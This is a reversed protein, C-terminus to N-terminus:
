AAPTSPSERSYQKNLADLITAAKFHSVTMALESYEGSSLFEIIWRGDDMERTRFKPEPDLKLIGLAELGNILGLADKHNGSGCWHKLFVTAAEDRTM